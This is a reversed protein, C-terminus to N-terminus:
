GLSTETARDALPAAPKRRLEGATFLAAVWLGLGLLCAAILFRWGHWPGATRLLALVGWIAAARGAWGLVERAPILELPRTKLRRAGVILMTVKALVQTAIYGGMAGMLGFAWLGLPVAALSFALRGANIWFIARTCDLARLLGDVPLASLPIEAIAVAFIAAAAAYQATFLTPILTPGVAWAFAALPFFFIVLRAVAERFVPVAGAAGVQALRVMMMEAIPSYFVDTMPIQLAGVAYVAFTAADTMAAVAYQPFHMQGVGFLVAGAFPLSYALQARFTGKSPPAPSAVAGTLAVVWAAVFRLAVFGVAGWAIGAIGLGLHMPAILALCRAIDSVVYSVGALVTRRAATLSIELPAAGLQLWVFAALPAALSALAPNSLREALVGAGLYIVTAALAGCLFLGSLAQILYRGAAGGRPVFYYLSAPLGIQGILFSSSAILFFQKYTGYEAASMRRALFIPIAFTIVASIARGALLPTAQRLLGKSESM